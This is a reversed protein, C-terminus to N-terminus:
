ASVDRSETSRLDEQVRRGVTRVDGQRHTRPRHYICTRRAGGEDAARYADPFQEEFKSMRKRRKVALVMFPVAGAVLMFLVDLLETFGLMFGVLLGICGAIICSALLRAVTMQLGSQQLLLNISIAPPFKLLLRHLSPITSLMEQRWLDTEGTVRQLAAIDRIAELRTQMAKGVAPQEIFFYYASILIGAAAVFVLAILALIM